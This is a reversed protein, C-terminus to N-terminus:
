SKPDHGATVSEAAAYVAVWPPVIVLDGNAYGTRLTRSVRDISERDPAPDVGLAQHSSPDFLEGDPELRHCGARELAREAQWSLTQPLQPILQVLQEVLPRMQDQLEEIRERDRYRIRTGRSGSTVQDNDGPRRFIWRGLLLMVLGALVAAGFVARTVLSRLTTEAAAAPIAVAVWYEGIDAQGVSPFPAAVRWSRWREPIEHFWSASAAEGPVVPLVDLRRGKADITTTAPILESDTAPLHMLARGGAPLAGLVHKPVDVRQGSVAATLARVAVTAPTPTARAVERGTWLWVSSAAVTGVTLLMLLAAGFRLVRHGGASPAGNLPPM